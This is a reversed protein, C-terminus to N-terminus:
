AAVAGPWSYDAYMSREAQELVRTVQLLRAADDAEEGRVVRLARDLARTVNDPKGVPEALQDWILSGSTTSIEVRREAQVATWEVEIRTARGSEHELVLYAGVPEDLQPVWWGRASVRVVADAPQLSLALAVDHPALDWLAGCPQFRDRARRTMRVTEIPATACSECIRQWAPAETPTYDVTLTRGRQYATSVVREAQDIGLAGPKALMVHCFRNLAYIGLVAHKAPPTAVIVLHPHTVDIAETLTDFPRVGAARVDDHKDALEVVGAVELDPHELCRRLYVSGFRGAGCLVVRTM